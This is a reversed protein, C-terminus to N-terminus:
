ELMALFKTRIENMKWRPFSWFLCGDTRNAQGLRVGPIHEWVIITYFGGPVLGNDGQVGEEYGLLSPTFKSVWHDSSLSKYAHLEPPEFATAQQARIEPPDNETGVSPVQLYVRMEARRQVRADNPDMSDPSQPVLSIDAM